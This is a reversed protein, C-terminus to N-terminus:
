MGTVYFLASIHIAGYYQEVVLDAHHGVLAINNIELELMM